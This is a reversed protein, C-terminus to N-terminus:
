ENKDLFRESWNNEYRDILRKSEEPTSNQYGYAQLFPVGLEPGYNFNLSWVAAALDDLRDGVGMKGIDIIGKFTKDAFIFNPLCADGHILVANITKEGYPCDSIDIGHILRLTNALLLPIEEKPLKKSALDDGEIYSMLLSNQEGVEKWALLRPAPIKGALWIMREKEALLNPGQKLIYTANATNIKFVINEETSRIRQMRVIDKIGFEALIDRTVHDVSRDLDIKIDSEERGENM